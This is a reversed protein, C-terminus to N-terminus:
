CGLALRALAKYGEKVWHRDPSLVSRRAGSMGSEEVGLGSDPWAM